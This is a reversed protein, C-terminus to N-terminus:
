RQALFSQSVGQDPPQHPNPVGERIKTLLLDLLGPQDLAGQSLADEFSGPRSEAPLSRRIADMLAARSQPTLNNGFERRQITQNSRLWDWM